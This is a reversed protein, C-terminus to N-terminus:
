EAPEKELEIETSASCQGPVDAERVIAVGVLRHRAEIADLAATADDEYPGWIIFHRTM